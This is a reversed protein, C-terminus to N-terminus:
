GKNQMGAVASTIEEVIGTSAYTKAQRIANKIAKADSSGHAKVVPKSIGLLAGGGVEKYDAKKKFDKIDKMVLAASLKSLLNKSFLGKMFDLFFLSTGECTKLILNGTFGDAVVVDCEGLMIGRGEVNGIFNIFENSKLQKHAEIYLDTGKCEEAGNNALGVKPNLINFMKKMYVYGMLGYQNLFEPRCDITAGCDVLMVYGTKSPLVASLAARKIGKIRKVVLTSGALLAGSNGASVLADGEGNKILELAVGMSSNKKDKVVSLPDDEMTIVEPADIITIGQRSIDHESMTQELINRRGTVCVEIGYETVADACGRLICLPANDGGMGDVIIRM